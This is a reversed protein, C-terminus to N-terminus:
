SLPPSPTFPPRTTQETRAGGYKPECPVPTQIAYFLSLSVILLSHIYICAKYVMAVNLPGWDQFFSMYMLQDDITFYYHKTPESSECPPTRIGRVNVQELQSGPDNLTEQKPPPHPFTTFYLRCTPVSSNYSLSHYTDLRVQRRLPLPTRMKSGHSSPLSSPPRPHLPHSLHLRSLSRSSPDSTLKHIPSSCRLVRQLHAHELPPPGWSDRGTSVSSTFVRLYRRTM